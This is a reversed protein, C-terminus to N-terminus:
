KEGRLDFNELKRSEFARVEEKCLEAYEANLKKIEQNARAVEVVVLIIGVAFILAVGMILVVLSDDM